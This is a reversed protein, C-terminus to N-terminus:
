LMLIYFTTFYIRKQNEERVYEGDAFAFEFPTNIDLSEMENNMVMPRIREGWLSNKKMLTDRWMATVANNRQLANLSSSSVPQLGEKYEPFANVLLGSNIDLQKFRSPHAGTVAQVSVVSDITSPWTPSQSEILLKIANQITSPSVFPSTARLYCILDAATGTKSECATQLVPLIPSHDDAMTTPIEIAQVSMEIALELARSDDSIICINDNEFCRSNLAANIIYTLLPKGNLLKLNKNRIRKSGARVPIFACNTLVSM